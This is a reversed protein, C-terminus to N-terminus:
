CTIILFIFMYIISKLISLLRSYRYSLRYNSKFANGLCYNSDSSHNQLKKRHRSVCLKALGSSMPTRANALLTVDAQHGGKIGMRQGTKRPARKAKKKNTVLTNKMTEFDNNEDQNETPPIMHIQNNSKAQSNTQLM